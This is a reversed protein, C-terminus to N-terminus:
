GSSTGTPSSSRATTRWRRSCRVTSWTRTAPLGPRPCRCEATSTWGDGCPARDTVFLQAVRGDHAASLVEAVSDATNGTGVSNQFRTVKAATTAAIQPQVVGWAAGHLEALPRHEPNGAVAGDAVNPYKTVSRYIPLYSQICALVLPDHAGGLVDVVGRDVARLFREVADRDVERGM